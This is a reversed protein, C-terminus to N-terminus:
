QENNKLIQKLQKKIESLFKDLEEETFFYGEVKKLWYEAHSPYDHEDKLKGDLRITEAIFPLGTNSIAFVNEKIDNNHLEPLGDKVNVPLYVTTKQKM